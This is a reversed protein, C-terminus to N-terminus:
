SPRRKRSASRMVLEACRAWATPYGQLWLSFRPNLQYRAPKGTEADSGSPMLGLALEVTKRSSDTNGAANYTETAPTGAMPTPWGAAFKVAHELSATHKKGDVTRGTADM